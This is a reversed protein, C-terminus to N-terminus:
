KSNDPSLADHIAFLCSGLEHIVPAARQVIRAVVESSVDGLVARVLGAAAVPTLRGLGIEMKEARAWLSPFTDHVDPRAFALVMM